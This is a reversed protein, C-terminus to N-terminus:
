CLPYAHKLYRESLIARWKRRGKGKMIRAGLAIWKLREEPSLLAAAQAQRHGMLEM